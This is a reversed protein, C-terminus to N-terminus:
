DHTVRKAIGPANCAHLLGTYDLEFSVIDGVELPRVADQIDILTHDSTQGLVTIGPDCPWLNECPIDQRGVSLLARRRSGRDVFTRTQLFADRGLEGVPRTPKVNAEIVEAQLLYMDSCVRKVDMNSHYYGELYEVNVYEIGFLHTGGVRLHNIGEPWIGRRLLYHSTCNGGSLYPFRLNRAAELKRALTVFQRGNERTPLLTGYCNFNTGIGYLKLGPLTLILDLSRLIAHEDEHWIGERLDGMDIMLMIEHTRTQRVAAASLSRIVQEESELSLDSYQVTDDVESPGPSRLLCKKVPLGALKKLNAVRSEAITEIGGRVVAEATERMGNFVKNVGMITVGVAAFEDVVQRANHELKRVNILLQPFSDQSQGTLPDTSRRDQM